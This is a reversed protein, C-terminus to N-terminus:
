NGPARMGRPNKRLWASLAQNYARAYATAQEILRLHEDGEVVDGTGDIIRLEAQRDGEFGPALCAFGCVGVPRFDDAAVAKQLDAAPDHLNLEALARKLREIQSAPGDDGSAMAPEVQWQDVILRVKAEGKVADIRQPLDPHPSGTEPWRYDITWGGQELRGLRGQADYAVVSPGAGRVGRLWDGLAAVPIEWGTAERLLTAADSGTRPGGEIGDIRAGGADVILTWSQRTVPASLSVQMRAGDQRWEIRGSGGNRGNSLAVRGTLSWVKEMRAARERAAQAADLAAIEAASRQPPVPRMAQTACASLLLALATGAFLRQKM